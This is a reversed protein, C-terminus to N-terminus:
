AAKKRRRGGGGAGLGLENEEVDNVLPNFTATAAASLCHWAAHMLPVEPRLDEMKFCVLGVICLWAHTVVPVRLKPERAARALYKLEVTSTNITSVQTRTGCVIRTRTLARARTHTHAHLASPTRAHSCCRCRVPTTRSDGPTAVPGLGPLPEDPSGPFPRVLFPAWPTAALSVITAAVPVNPYVCRLM